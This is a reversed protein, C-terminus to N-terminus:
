AHNSSQSPQSPNSTTAKPKNSRPQCTKATHQGQCKYCTHKFPCNNRFCNGSSHYKFCYGPPCQNTTPPRFTHKKGVNKAAAVLYLQQHITDWRLSKSKAKLQRFDQDYQLASDLSFTKAISLVTSVYAFLQNQECPVHESYLASFVMFAQTWQDTTTIPVMKARRNVEVKGSSSINLSVDNYDNVPLLEALNIYKGARISFVLKEPVHATLPHAASPEGPSVKGVGLIDDLCSEDIPEVAAASTEKLLEPPPLDDTTQSTMAQKVAEAVIPQLEAVVDRVLADRDTSSSSARVSRKANSKKSSDTTIKRKPAM